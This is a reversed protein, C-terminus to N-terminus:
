NSVNLINLRNLYVPSISLLDCLNINFIKIGTASMTKSPGVKVSLMYVVFKLDILHYFDFM